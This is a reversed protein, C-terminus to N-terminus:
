SVVQNVQVKQFKYGLRKLEIAAGIRFMARGTRALIHFARVTETEIHEHRIRDMAIQACSLLIGSIVGAEVSGAKHGLIDETIHDDMDDFGRRGLLASFKEGHHRGWDTDWWRAVAMGIYGACGITFEPYGNIQKVAVGMYEPAYEKWKADIDDSALLTGDLLGLSTCVRLMEDTLSSEYSDLYETEEM